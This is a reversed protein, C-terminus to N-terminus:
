TKNLDLATVNYRHTTSTPALTITSFMQNQNAELYDLLGRAIGLFLVHREDAGVAGIPSPKLQAWASQFGTELANALTAENLPM